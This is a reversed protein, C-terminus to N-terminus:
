SACGECAIYNDGIKKDISILDGLKINSEDTFELDAIRPVILEAAEEKSTAMQSFESTEGTSLVSYVYTYRLTEM